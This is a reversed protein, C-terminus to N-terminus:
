IDKKKKKRINIYSVFIFIEEKNQFNKVVLTTKVARPFRNNRKSDWTDSWHRRMSFEFKLSVVNELLVSKAGGTTPEADFNNQERRMLRFLDTSDNKLFYGVEKIDSYPSSKKPDGVLFNEHHMVTTFNINSNEGETESVFIVNKNKRNYYTNSFDKDIKSIALNINEYFEAYGSVEKISKIVAHYSTAVMVLIIAGIASAVLIELLSFGKSFNKKFQNKFLKIHQFFTHFNIISKM